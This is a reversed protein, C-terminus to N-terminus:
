KGPGELLTRMMWMLPVRNQAVEASEVFRRLELRFRHDHGSREFVALESHSTLDADMGRVYTTLVGATM